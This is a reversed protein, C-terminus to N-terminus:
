GFLNFLDPLSAGIKALFYNGMRTFSEEDLFKDLELTFIIVLFYYFYFSGFDPLLIDKFARPFAEGKDTLLDRFVVIDWDYFEIAIDLLFYSISLIISISAFIFLFDM